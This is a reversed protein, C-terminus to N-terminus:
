PMERQTKQPIVASSIKYAHRRIRKLRNNIDSVATKLRDAIDKPKTEGELIAELVETLGKEDALSKFLNDIRREAEQEDINSLHDEPNRPQQSLLENYNEHAAEFEMKDRLEEGDQNESVPRQRINDASHVLHNIDSDVISKLCDLLDENTELNLARTGDLAKEIAEAAVDEPTKGKALDEAGGTRWRLRRAKWRAYGALQIGISNWDAQQLRGFDPLTMKSQV